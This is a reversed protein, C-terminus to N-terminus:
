VPRAKKAKKQSRVADDHAKRKAALKTAERIKRRKGFMIKNYLYKERKKMMMIALRKAENEEEQALRQKDELKVTGAMVRPKKGEMREEELATLRAEEEKESGAEVDEEEEEENEGGEDGDSDNDEEEDKEESEDMSGPHEGRQLALLKLKEPPIYDGEKESVFPSLHPPLQVGPFYDAVPLLLRANVCDFVWQPQVYYRGIVPTQQGPRDVIQHTICSDTVDYTAGICLSKDWSVDGGFSRIVFALAERPVERNLFFKLGEFLKKHKEQAELDKRRDEEQATMEGDAPFEDVEAEEEVPVVMRALSAGLAALKEMSSESDLAYTDESAKVEAHAQGELKPPYHLNISQYLRFNVFGLLTTYFETFTAMVRYDVDTPHDHSFAYPTIWVIPQGLVEAQYYIGKISLFVKRLARAAIVYHMFEVTLRRCLHITQVHCKGTRPFTSFLFCMSLADDLDRLADIFTPYREKVIHDLKYNPKNDKLREVTNWESKGYAKRLKRVFVKYERFKNVIPEHLLFKIDKLLYFTRAATSGKNVKKKHKPEHPYIGKLICLRRFDALSLQLKKRAKNRTIYNTASGREYKKKELGGM